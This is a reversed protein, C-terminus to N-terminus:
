GSLAGLEGLFAFVFTPNLANKFLKKNQLEQHGQHGQHILDNKKNKNCDRLIRATISKIM